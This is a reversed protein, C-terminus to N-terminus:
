HRSLTVLPCQGQAAAAPRAADRAFVLTLAPQYDDLVTELSGSEVAAAVNYSLVRTLGVGARAADCAVEANSV